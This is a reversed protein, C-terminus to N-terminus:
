IVPPIDAPRLSVTMEHDLWKYRLHHDLIPDYISEFDTKFSKLQTIRNRLLM